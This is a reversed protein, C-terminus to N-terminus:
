PEPSLAYPASPPEHTATLLTVLVRFLTILMTIVLLGGLLTKDPRSACCCLLVAALVWDLSLALSLAALCHDSFLDVLRLPCRFM